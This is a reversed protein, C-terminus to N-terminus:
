NEEELRAEFETVYGQAGITHTTSKVFYRGDFTTGLGGLEIISGARLDPTGVVSGKGTVFDKALRSLKDLAYQRAAEKDKFPRDVIIDKREKFGDEIRKLKTADRLGRTPLDDRTVTAKIAEKKKSDWGRVTLESVQKTTTLTPQFDILSKGWEILYSARPKPSSPGFFLYPSDSTDKKLVVDYGNRHALQLLFLIDYQNDQLVHDHKPEDSKAAGDTKVPVKLSGIKLRGQSDIQEAIESDKKDEYVDTIQETMLKRLVNQGAVKLTPQGASPFTPTMKTVIGALMLKLPERGTADFYGMSLEIEQGPDFMESRSDSGGHKSGTYKFDLKAADWNNITLDFTDIQDVNDAYRVSVIDRATGSPLDVGSIKIDFTPVYVDRSRYIPVSQAM